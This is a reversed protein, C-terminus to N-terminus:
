SGQLFKTTAERQQPHRQDYPPMGPRRIELILGQSLLWTVSREVHVLLRENREHLLWWRAICTM